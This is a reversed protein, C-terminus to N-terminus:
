LAIEHNKPQVYGPSVIRAAVMGGDLVVLWTPHFMQLLIISIHDPDLGQDERNEKGSNYDDEERIQNKMGQINM